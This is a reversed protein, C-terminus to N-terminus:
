AGLGDLHKKREQALAHAPHQHGLHRQEPQLEAHPVPDRDRLTWGIDSRHVRVNWIGDWQRNQGNIGSCRTPWRAQHIPKSSIGPAVTSSRTSRGSCRTTRQLAEDRRKQYRTLRQGARLRLLHRRYLDREADFAIRMETQETAPQGNDPDIQIFDTAAQARQWVAEDLNGDLTITEGEAIRQAAITRREQSPPPTLQQAFTVAPVLLAGLLLCILRTVRLSAFTM